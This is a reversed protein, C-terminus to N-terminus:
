KFFSIYSKGRPKIRAEGSEIPEELSKDDILFLGALDLAEVDIQGSEKVEKIADFISQPTIFKQRAKSDNLFQCVEEIGFEDKANEEKLNHLTKQIVFVAVAKTWPMRKISLKIFVNEMKTKEENGVGFKVCLM